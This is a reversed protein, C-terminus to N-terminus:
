GSPGTLPASVSRSSPTSRKRPPSVRLWWPWPKASSPPGSATTSSAQAGEGSRSRSGARIGPAAGDVPHHHTSRDPRLVDTGGGAGASAHLLAHQPAARSATWSASCRANSTWGNPSRRWWWGRRRSPMPWRERGTVTGASGGDIRGVVAPLRSRVYAVGDERQGASPDFLRAEGGRTAFMLAIRRGLAGAGVVAVPRQEIDGPVVFSM